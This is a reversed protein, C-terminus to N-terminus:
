SCVCVHASAVRTFKQCSFLKINELRGYREALTKRAIPSSKDHVFKKEMFQWTVNFRNRWRCLWVASVTLGCTEFKSIKEAATFFYRLLRIYEPFKQCSFLKINVAGCMYPLDAVKKFTLLYLLNIWWYQWKIRFTM